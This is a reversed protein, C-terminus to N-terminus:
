WAGPVPEATPAAGWDDEPEPPPAEEAKARAEAEAAAKAQEKRYFGLIMLLEKNAAVVADPLGRLELKGPTTQKVAIGFKEAMMSTDNRFQDFLLSNLQQCDEATDVFESIAGEREDLWARFATTAEEVSQELGRIYIVGGGCWGGSRDVAIVAGTESEVEKAKAKAPGVLNKPCDLDEKASLLSKILEAATDAAKPPGSILLWNGDQSIDVQSRRALSGIEDREDLLKFTDRDEIEIWTEYNADLAELAAKLKPVLARDGAFELHGEKVVLGAGVCAKRLSELSKPDEQLKKWAFGSLKMKETHLAAWDELGLDSARELKTVARGVLSLAGVLARADRMAVEKRKLLERVTEQAAISREDRKATIEAELSEMDAKQELQTRELSASRAQAAQLLAAVPAM